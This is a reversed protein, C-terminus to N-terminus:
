ALSATHAHRLIDVARAGMFQGPARVSRNVAIATILLHVERRFAASQERQRIFDFKKM